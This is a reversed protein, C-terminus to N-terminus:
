KPQDAALLQSVPTSQSSTSMQASPNQLINRLSSGLVRTFVAAGEANLHVGDSYLTPPLEGPGFPVVVPINNARAAQFVASSGDNADNDPPLVLVLQAGYDACLRAMRELRPQIRSELEDDAPLPLAVPRLRATLDPFDPLLRLLFWKRIESRFGYFESVTAFLFGGTTTNDSASDHKVQLVDRPDLLVRGFIDGRVTTAALQRPSLMLLVTKPRAGERFLRNLGYYWDLYNTDEVVFRVLHHEPRLRNDLLQPDVGSGLLSNGVILVPVPGEGSQRIEEASAQESNLRQGVESVHSLTRRTALELGLSVLALVTLLLVSYRTL